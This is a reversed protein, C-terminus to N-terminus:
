CEVKEYLKKQEETLPKMQKEGGNEEDFRDSGSAYRTAQRIKAWDGIAKWEELSTRMTDKEDLSAVVKNYYLIDAPSESALDEHPEKLALQYEDQSWKPLETTLPIGDSDLTLDFDLPGNTSFTEEQKEEGNCWM